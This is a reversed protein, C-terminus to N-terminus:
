CNIFYQDCNFLRHVFLQTVNHLVNIACLKRQTELSLSGYCIMFVVEFMGVCSFHFGCNHRRCSSERRIMAPFTLCKLWFWILCLSCILLNGTDHEHRGLKHDAFHELSNDIGSFRARVILSVGYWLPRKINRLLNAFGLEPPFWNLDVRRYMQCAFHNTFLPGVAALWSHARSPGCPILFQLRARKVKWRHLMPLFWKANVVDFWIL